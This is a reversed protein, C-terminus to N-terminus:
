AHSPRGGLSKRMRHLAFRARLRRYSSARDALARVAGVLEDRDAGGPFGDEIAFAKYLETRLRQEVDPWRGCARAHARFPAYHPSDRMALMERVGDLVNRFASRFNAASVAGGHIRFTVLPRNVYVLGAKSALRNWMDGDCMQVFAPDFLGAEELRQKRILTASPEGVINLDLHDLKAECYAEPTLRTTGSAYLRDLVGRHFDYFGRAEPDSPEEFLLDRACAVFDAGGSSAELMTALCDPTMWDDQFLFKIWAGRALEICRNWNGVLGLNRPNRHLRFRADRETWRAAIATSDDSSGDDVILVEFDDFTQGAISSLCAELYPGGNYTPVCVSVPLSAM